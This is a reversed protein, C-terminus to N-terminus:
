DDSKDPKQWLNAREPHYIAGLMRERAYPVEKTKQLYLSILAMMAKLKGIVVAKM